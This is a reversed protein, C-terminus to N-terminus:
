NRKKAFLRGIARGFDEAGSPKSNQKTISGGALRRGIPSDIPVIEKSGCSSCVEHRASLRWFSYILGPVLFCLWLILEILISGPTASKPEGVSECTKCVKM